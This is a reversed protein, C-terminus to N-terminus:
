KENYCHPCSRIPMETVECYRVTPPPADKKEVEAVVALIRVALTKAADLPFVMFEGNTEIEVGGTGGNPEVYVHNHNGEEGFVITNPDVWWTGCYQCLKEDARRALVGARV